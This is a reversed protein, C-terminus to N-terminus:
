KDASIVDPQMQRLSDPSSANIDLKELKTSMENATRQLQELEDHRTQLDIPKEAQSTLKKELDAQRERLQAIRQEIAKVKTADNGVADVQQNELRMLEDEVRDLRKTDLQQLM